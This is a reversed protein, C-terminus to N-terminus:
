SVHLGQGTIHSAPTRVRWQEVRKDMSGQVKAKDRDNMRVRVSIQAVGQSGPLACSGDTRGQNVVPRPGGRTSGGRSCREVPPLGQQTFGSEESHSCREVVSAHSPLSVGDGRSAM